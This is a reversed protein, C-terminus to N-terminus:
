VVILKLIIPYLPLTSLKKDNLYAQIDKFFFERGYDTLICQPYGFKKKIEQGIFRCILKGDYSTVAQTLTWFTCFDIVTIIFHKGQNNSPM